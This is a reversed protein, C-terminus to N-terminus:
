VGLISIRMYDIDSGNTLWTQHLDYSKTGMTCKTFDKLDLIVPYQQAQYQELEFLGQGDYVVDEVAGSKMIASIRVKYKFCRGVVTEDFALNMEAHNMAFIISDDINIRFEDDFGAEIVIAARGQVELACCTAFAHSIGCEISTAQSAFVLLATAVPPFIDERLLHDYIRNLESPHVYVGPRGQSTLIKIVNEPTARTALKKLLFKVVPVPPFIPILENSLLAVTDVGMEVDQFIRRFDEFQKTTRFVISIFKNLYIRSEAFWHAYTELIRVAATTDDPLTSSLVLTLRDYLAKRDYTQVGLYDLGRICADLETLTFMEGPDTLGHILTVALEIKAKPVPVNITDTIGFDEYLSRILGCCRLVTYKDCRVPGDVCMITFNAVENFIGLLDMPSVLNVESHM